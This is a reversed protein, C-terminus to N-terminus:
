NNIRKSNSLRFLNILELIIVTDTTYDHGYNKSFRQMKIITSKKWDLRELRVKHGTGGTADNADEPRKFKNVM